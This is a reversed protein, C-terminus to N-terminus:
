KLYRVKESKKMIIKFFPFQQIIVRKFIATTNEGRM